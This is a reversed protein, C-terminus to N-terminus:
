ATQGLMVPSHSLARERTSQTKTEGCRQHPHPDIWHTGQAHRATLPSTLSSTKSEDFTVTSSPSYHHHFVFSCLKSPAIPGLQPLFRTLAPTFSLSNLSHGTPPTTIAKELSPHPIHTCETHAGTHLLFTYAHAHTDKQRQRMLRM